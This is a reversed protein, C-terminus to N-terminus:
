LFPVKNSCYTSSSRFEASQKQMVRYHTGSQRVGILRRNDCFAALNDCGRRELAFGRVRPAKQKLMEIALQLFAILIFASFALLIRPAPVRQFVPAGESEYPIKLTM